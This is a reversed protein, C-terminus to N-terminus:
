CELSYTPNKNAESNGPCPDVNCKKSVEEDGTCKKGGHQAEERKM